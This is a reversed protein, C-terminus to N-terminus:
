DAVHPPKGPDQRIHVPLDEVACDPLPSVSYYNLGYRWSRHIPEVCVAGHSGAIQRWLGRASVTRDLAPFTTAKLYLGAAATVIAILAVALDRRGSREWWCVAAALVMAAAMWPWPFPPLSARSLGVRLAEPLVSAAVPVGAMLLTTAALYPAAGRAAALGTGALAAVAPFLPLLYGPLKNTSLSFFVLGFLLWLALFRLRADSWVNRRLALPLLPSWPAMGALLVPVYFWFPQVHQLEATAFRGFHHEWFFEKFFVPGNVTACLVYWPAAVVAAIAVPLALDRLHKRGEWALPAALVLPVLGKALISLGLLAGAPMLGRRERRDLWPLFLLMAAAFTASMPLDTVALHSFAFWGATTALIAASYWGARAGYERRIRLLFFALFAVSTLVMPVRPASEEGLGARFALGTIWYLLAPKEFWPQGWLRPTVWDGSQAMERGIAAYRPEDPGLLGAGTLRFFFVFFLALVFLFLKWPPRRM